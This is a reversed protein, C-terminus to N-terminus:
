MSEIHVGYIIGDFVYLSLGLPTLMCLFIVAILATALGSFLGEPEETEIHRGRKLYWSIGSIRTIWAFILLWRYSNMAYPHYGAAALYVERLAGFTFLFFFCAGLIYPFHFGPKQM